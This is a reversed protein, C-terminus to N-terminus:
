VIRNSNPNYFSSIVKKHKERVYNSDNILLTDTYLYMGSVVDQEGVYKAVPGVYKAEWASLCIFTASM